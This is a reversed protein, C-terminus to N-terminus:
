HINDNLIEEMVQLTREIDQRSIDYHTVMRIFKGFAIALIGREKLLSCVELSTKGTDSVDFIVINTKVREPNIRVGKINALGEALRKANEHDLFLRKPSEELAVLGAAALVGVQRMGGGLRKRWIRAQEIFESSGLLISGVPAGLGKSLCFQVSDVYRTLEAVSSGLAVSANFIRAGDLHVPIGLEHAKHCIEATQTATMVSGGGFNHTNELCILGTPCAYYPQNVHIEPEIEEWSLIGGEDSARISRILVGSVVSPTAMEYNLIHSRAEAIVEDGPKTHVKIAIQNGMSGTPVFLAAEKEFIEAAREQLRNVTPDEGFVDDGVEAEAMARRMAPTPKTVTDSRLDIVSFM